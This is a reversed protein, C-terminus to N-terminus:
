TGSMSWGTSDPSSSRKTTGASTSSWSSRSSAGDVWPPQDLGQQSLRSPSLPRAVRHTHPQARAGLGHAALAALQLPWGLVIKFIGLIAVATTAGMAGSTGALWIPGQIAVRVVCPLVLLWTLVTTLRM